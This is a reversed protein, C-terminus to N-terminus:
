KGDFYVATGIDELCKTIFIPQSADKALFHSGSRVGLLRRVFILYRKAQDASLNDLVMM